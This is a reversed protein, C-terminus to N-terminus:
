HPVTGPPIQGPDAKLAEEWCRKPVHTRLREVLLAAIRADIEHGVFPVVDATIDGGLAVLRQAADITHAYPIVRDLKGHLLHLTVDLRATDPLRAYRAGIAVVRGAPAERDRTSELAMVGGQSFGILATAARDVRATQQWHQVIALFANMAGAVRAERNGDVIGGMSYWQRGKGSDCPDPADIAVVFAQPFEQALRRGLPELDRARGGVGHFLLILQQAAGEPRQVILAESM